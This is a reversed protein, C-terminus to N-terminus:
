SGVYTNCGSDHDIQSVLRKTTFDSSAQKILREYPQKGALAAFVFRECRVIDDCTNFSTSSSRFEDFGCYHCFSLPLKFGPLHNRLISHSDLLMRIFSLCVIMKLLSPHRWKLCNFFDAFCIFISSLVISSFIRLMIQPSNGTVYYKLISHCKM